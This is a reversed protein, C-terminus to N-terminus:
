FAVSGITDKLKCHTQELQCSELVKDNSQELLVRGKVVKSYKIMTQELLVSGKVM